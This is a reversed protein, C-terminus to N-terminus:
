IALGSCCLTVAAEQAQNISLVIRKHEGVDAKQIWEKRQVQSGSGAFHSMVVKSQLFYTANWVVYSLSWPSIGWFGM